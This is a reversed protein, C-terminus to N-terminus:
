GTPFCSICTKSSEVSSVRPLTASFYADQPLTPHIDMVDRAHIMLIEFGTGQAFPQDFSTAVTDDDEVGVEHEGGSKRARAM